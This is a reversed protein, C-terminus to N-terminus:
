LSFRIGVMIRVDSLDVDGSVRKKGASAIEINAVDYHYSSELLLITQANVFFQLGGGVVMGFSPDVTTELTTNSPDQWIHYNLGGGLFMYPSLNRWSLRQPVRVEVVVAGTLINARGLNERYVAIDGNTDVKIDAQSLRSTAYDLNFGVSLWDLFSYRMYLSVDLNDRVVFDQVKVTAPVGDFKNDLDLDGLPLGAGVHLGIAFPSPDQEQTWAQDWDQSWLYTNCSCFTIVFLAIWFQSTLGKRM